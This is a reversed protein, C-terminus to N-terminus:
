QNQEGCCRSQGWLTRWFAVLLGSQILDQDIRVVAHTFTEFTLRCFLRPPSTKVLNRTLKGQFNVKKQTNVPCYKVKYPGYFPRCILRPMLDWVIGVIEHTFPEFTLRHSLWPSTKVLNQISKGQFCVEKSDKHPLIQGELPWLFALFHARTDFRLCNGSDLM